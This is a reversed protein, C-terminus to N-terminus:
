QPVTRCVCRIRRVACKIYRCGSGINERCASPGSHSLTAANLAASGFRDAIPYPTPIRFSVRLRFAKQSHSKTQEIASNLKRRKYELAKIQDRVGSIDFGSNPRYQGEEDRNFFSRNRNQRTEPLCDKLTKIRADYEARLELAEYLYLKNNEDPM